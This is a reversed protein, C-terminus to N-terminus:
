TVGNGHRIHKFKGGIPGQEWVIGLEAIQDQSLFAEM